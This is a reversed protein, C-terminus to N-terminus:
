RPRAWAPTEVVRPLWLAVILGTLAVAGGGVVDLVYHNGTTVVAWAMAVPMALAFVRVAVRNTSQWLIVGVLLNWGFHLSPLAAYKNTLAPPQLARYGQSRDSVTDVVDIVGFRPPAVPVSVFVLMGIAGSIFVANRLLYYRAPARLYLVVFTTVIVPWHGYIYVWNALTVIRPNDLVADQFWPEWLVGLWREADVLRDANAFAREEGGQTLGRIGFYALAFLGLLALQFMLGRPGPRQRGPPVHAQPARTTTHM